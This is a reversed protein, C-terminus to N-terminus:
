SWTKQKRFPKILGFLLLYLTYLVDYYPLAYGIKKADLMRTPKFFVFWQVIWKFGIIAIPIYWYLPQLIISTICTIYILIQFVSYVGLLRKYKGLYAKSTSLHRTKQNLWKKFGQPGQSYMFSDPNVCVAVNTPNATEQVFLDDDGSQIHQHSAFGKNKFFLSKSYSLNRGVGMYTKGALAYTLYQLATHFTEYKIISGLLNAKVTLPANGLVIEKNEKASMMAKIWHESNPRCDADTFLLQEHKALKIGITLAFKKGRQFRENIDLHRVSLNKHEKALSDLFDFTGDFSGDNIVVVEFNSYDQNLILPLNQELNSKENKAAIVISVPIDTTKVSLKVRRLKNFISLYYYLLILLSLVSIGTLALFSFSQM